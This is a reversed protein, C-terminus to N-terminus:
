YDSRRPVPGMFRRTAAQYPDFPPPMDIGLGGAPRGANFAAEGGRPVFEPPLQPGGRPAIPRPPAPTPTPKPYVQGPGRYRGTANPIQSLRDALQQELEGVEPATPMRQPVPLEDAIQGVMKLGDDAMGAGAREAAVAGGRGLGGGLGLAALSALQAPSTLSRLGELAGSLGGSFTEAPHNVAGRLVDPIAGLADFTNGPLGAGMSALSLPSMDEEPLPQSSGPALSEQIGSIASKPALPRAIANLADMWSPM